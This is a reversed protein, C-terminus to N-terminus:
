LVFSLVVLAGIFIVALIGIRKLNQIVYTYDPNFGGSTETASGSASFSRRTVKAM